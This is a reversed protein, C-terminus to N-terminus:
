KSRRRSRKAMRAIQNWEVNTVVRVEEVYAPQEVVAPNPPVVGLNEKAYWAGHLIADLPHQMKKFGTLPIGFAQSALPLIASRQFYVPSETEWARKEIAGIARATVVKDWPKSYHKGKGGTMQQTVLMFEECVFWGPNMGDLLEFLQPGYEVVGMELPRGQMNFKAWGTNEGPDFAIYHFDEDSM